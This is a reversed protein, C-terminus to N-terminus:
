DAGVREIRPGAPQFSEVRYPGFVIRRLEVVDVIGIEDGIRDAGDLCDVLIEAEQQGLRRQLRHVVDVLVGLFARASRFVPIRKLIVAKSDLLHLRTELAEGLEPVPDATAPHPHRRSANWFAKLSRTSLATPWSRAHSAGHRRVVRNGSRRSTPATSYRM